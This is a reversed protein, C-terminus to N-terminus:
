AKRVVEKSTLRRTISDLSNPEEASQAVAERIQGEAWPLLAGAELLDSKDELRSMIRSCIASAIDTVALTCAPDSEDFERGTERWVSATLTILRMMLLFGTKDPHGQDARSDASLELKKAFTHVDKVTEEM